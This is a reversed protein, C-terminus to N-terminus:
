QRASYNFFVTDSVPPSTRVSHHILGYNYHSAASEDDEEEQDQGNKREDMYRVGELYGSERLANSYIPTAAKFVDENNSIDTLRRSISQDTCRLAAAYLLLLLLHPRQRASFSAMTWSSLATEMLLLVSSMEFHRWSFM